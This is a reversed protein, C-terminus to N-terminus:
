ELFNYRQKRLSIEEIDLYWLLEKICAVHMIESLRQLLRLNYDSSEPLGQARLGLDVALLDEYWSEFRTRKSRLIKAEIVLARHNVANRM